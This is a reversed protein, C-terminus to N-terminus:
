QGNQNENRTSSANRLQHFTNSLHVFEQVSLTEARRVIDINAQHLISEIMDKSYPLASGFLSNKITKRRQGFAAKIVQFFLLEDKAEFPPHSFFDFMIVQSDINVKPYFVHGPITILPHIAACYQSVVSLRGYDRSNPMSIIRQAMEKQLMVIAKKFLWRNKILKIIIQSSINYPLNGMAIFQPQQNQKLYNSFVQNYINTLNLRLFDEHICSINAIQESDIYANLLDFMNSDYEVAYVSKVADAIQFTLAGMGPGIELVCDEPNLNSKEVILKCINKDMLFNQGLNKKPRLQKERFTFYLSHAM